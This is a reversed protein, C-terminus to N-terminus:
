SNELSELYDPLLKQFVTDMDKALDEISKNGAYVDQMDRCFTDGMSSNIWYQNIFPYVDKASNYAAAFDMYTEDTPAPADKLSQIPSKNWKYYYKPNTLMEELFKKAVDPSECTNSIIYVGGPQSELTLEYGSLPPTPFFGAQIDPNTQKITDVCWDGMNLMVAQETAFMELQQDYSVGLVGTNTYGKEYIDLTMELAKTWEPSNYKAKGELVQQEFDKKKGYLVSPWISYPLMQTVFNDKIGLAIPVKGANKITECNALFEEWTKPISLGLEQYIKKNYITGIIQVNIPVGYYKGKYEVSKKGAETLRELFPSGTLDMAIGRNIYNVFNAIGVWGFFVDPIDNSAIKTQIAATYQDNKVSSFEVNIDPFDSKFQELTPMYDPWTTVEPVFVEVTGKVVPDAESNSQATSQEITPQATPKTKEGDCGSFMTLVVMLVLFPCMIRKMM